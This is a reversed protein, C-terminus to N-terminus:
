PAKDAHPRLVCTPPVFQDTSEMLVKSYLGLENGHDFCSPNVLTDRSSMNTIHDLCMSLTYVSYHHGKAM